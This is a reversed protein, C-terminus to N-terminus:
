KLIEKEEEIGEWVSRSIITRPNNQKILLNWMKSEKMIPIIFFDTANKSWGRFGEKLCVGLILKQDLFFQLIKTECYDYNTPLQDANALRFAINPYKAYFYDFSDDEAQIKYALTQRLMLEINQHVGENGQKTACKICATCERPYKWQRYTKNKYGSIDM